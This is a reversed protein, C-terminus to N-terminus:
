ERARRHAMSRRASTKVMRGANTWPRDWQPEWWDSVMERADDHSTNGITLIVLFFATSQWIHTILSEHAPNLSGLTLDRVRDVWISVPNVKAWAQLWGPFTSRYSKRILRPSVAM